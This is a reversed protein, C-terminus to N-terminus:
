RALLAWYQRLMWASGSITASCRAVVAAVAHWVATLVMAATVTDSLAPRRVAMVAVQRSFGAPPEWMPQRRLADDIEDFPM